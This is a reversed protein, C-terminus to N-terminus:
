NKKSQLVNRSTGPLSIAVAIESEGTQKITQEMLVPLRSYSGGGCLVDIAVDVAYPPCPAEATGRPPWQM